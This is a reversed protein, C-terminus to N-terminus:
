GIGINNHASVPAFKRNGEWVADYGNVLLNALSQPPPVPGNRCEAFGNFDTTAECLFNREGTTVFQIPLGAVPHGDYTFFRARLGLTERAIIDLTGYYAVANMRKPALNAEAAQAPAPAVTAASVVAAATALWRKTTHKM